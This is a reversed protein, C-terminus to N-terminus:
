NKSPEFKLPPVTRCSRQLQFLVAVFSAAAANVKMVLRILGVLRARKCLNLRWVSHHRDHAKARQEALLAREVGEWVEDVEAGHAQTAVPADKRV